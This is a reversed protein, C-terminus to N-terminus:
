LVSIFMPSRCSKKGRWVEPLGPIDVSINKIRPNFANWMGYFSFLLALGFFLLTLVMRNVIVNLFKNLWLFFWILGSAMLLNTLLGIWFGSIFNLIRIVFFEHWHPLISSFVFVGSLLIATWLIIKQYLISEVSFFNVVLFYFFWHGGFVVVMAFIVFLVLFCGNENEYFLAPKVNETYCV